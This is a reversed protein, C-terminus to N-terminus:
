FKLGVDEKLDGDASDDAVDGVAAVDQTLSPKALALAIVVLLGVRLALVLLQRLKLRQALRRDSLLLHELAAVAPVAAATFLTPKLRWWAAGASRLRATVEANWGADAQVVSGLECFETVREIRRWPGLVEQRRADAALLWGRTDDKGAVLHKTKPIAVTLGFRGTVDVYAHWSVRASEWSSAM